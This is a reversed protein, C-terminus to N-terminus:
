LHSFYFESFYSHCIVLRQGFDLREKGLLLLIAPYMAMWGGNLENHDHVLNEGITRVPSSLKRTLPPSIHVKWTM